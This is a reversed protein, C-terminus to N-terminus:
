QPKDGPKPKNLLVPILSLMGQRHNYIQTLLGTRATKPQARSVLRVRQVKAIKTILISIIVMRDTKSAQSIILHFHQTFQLASYFHLAKNHFIISIIYYSQNYIKRLPLCPYNRTQSIHLLPFFM